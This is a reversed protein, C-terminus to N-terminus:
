GDGPEFLKAMNLRDSVAVKRPNKLTVREASIGARPSAFTFIEQDRDMEELKALSWEPVMEAYRQDGLSKFLMGCLVCWRLQIGEDIESSEALVLKHEHKEIM